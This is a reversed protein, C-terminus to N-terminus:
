NKGWSMNEMLSNSNQVVKLANALYEAREGEAKLRLMLSQDDQGFLTKPDQSLAGHDQDKVILPIQERPLDETEVAM